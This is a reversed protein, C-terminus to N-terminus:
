YNKQNVVQSKGAVLFNIQSKTFESYLLSFLLIICLTSGARGYWAPARPDMPLALLM